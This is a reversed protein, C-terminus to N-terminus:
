VFCFGTQGRGGREGLKSFKCLVVMEMLKKFEFVGFGTIRGGRLCILFHADRLNM